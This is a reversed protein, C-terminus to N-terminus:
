NGGPQNREEQGRKKKEEKRLAALASATHRDVEIFQEDRIDDHRCTCDFVDRLCITCITRKM